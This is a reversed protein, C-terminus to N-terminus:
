KFDKADGTFKFFAAYTNPTYGEYYTKEDYEVSYDDDYLLAICYVDDPEISDCPVLYEALKKVQKPTHSYHDVYYDFTYIENSNYFIINVNELGEPQNLMDLVKDSIEKDYTLAMYENITKYFYKYVPVYLTYTNTGDTIIAEFDFVSDMGTTDNMIMYYEEFDLETVEQRFVEYLQMADDPTITLINSYIHVSEAKPVYCYAEKYEKTNKLCDILANFDTNSITLYRKHEIGNVCITMNQMKTSDEYYRETKMMSINKSLVDAVIKKINDDKIKVNSAKYDHYESLHYIYGDRQDLKIYSIESPTPEFTIYSRYVALMGFICAVNLAFVIALGSVTKFVTKIRKTTIIEYLFYVIIAAIYIMVYLFISVADLNDAGILTVFIGGCAYICVCMCFIIRITAQLYKNLAPYGASESKRFKFIVLALVSVLLALIITYTACSIDTFCFDSISLSNFGVPLWRGLGSDYPAIPINETVMVKFIFMLYDPVILILGTVAINTVLTGTLTMALAVAAASYLSAATINFTYLWINTHNLTFYQPFFSNTIVGLLTTTSCIAIIWTVIAAYYSIFLCIRTDAISHYFDSAKRKNLFSFASLVLLPAAIYIMCFLMPNVGSFTIAETKYDYGYTICELVKGVPIAIVQILLIVFSAIGVLKTQRLGELYLRPSFIRKKM